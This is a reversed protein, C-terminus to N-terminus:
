SIQMCQATLFHQTKTTTKERWTEVIEKGFLIKFFDYVNPIQWFRFKIFFIDEAVIKLELQLKSLKGSMRPPYNCKHSPMSQSWVAVVSKLFYILAKVSGTVEKDFMIEELTVRYSVRRKILSNRESNKYHKIDLIQKLIPACLNHVVSLKRKGIYLKCNNM